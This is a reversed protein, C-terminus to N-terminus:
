NQTLKFSYPHTDSPSKSSTNDINPDGPPKIPDLRQIFGAQNIFAIGATNSSDISCNLKKGNELIPSSLIGNIFQRGAGRRRTISRICFHHLEFEGQTLAELITAGILKGNFRAGFLTFQDKGLLSEIRQAPADIIDPCYLENSYIKDLDEELLPDYQPFYEVIVPM